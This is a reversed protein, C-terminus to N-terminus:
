CFTVCVMGARGIDSYQGSVCGGAVIQPYAGAGPYRLICCACCTCGSFTTNTLWTFCCQTENQFGYIPPHVQYGAHTNDFCIRPWMGRIGYVVSPSNASTTIGSYSAGPIHPIEGCTACAAFCYSAGAQCICSGADTASVNTLRYQLPVGYQAMWNGLTSQGGEACFNCLGNGVVFSPCGGFRSYQFAAVCGAYCGVTTNPCGACLTYTSGASVAIIVSAYAGTSGFPSGGCCAHVAGTGGAGWIQFRARTVGAPVTWACCAGANFSLATTCVKFGQTAGTLDPIVSWLSTRYPERLLCPEVCRIWCTATCNVVEATAQQAATEACKTALEATRIVCRDQLLVKQNFASYSLVDM